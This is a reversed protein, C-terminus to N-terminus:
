WHRDRHMGVIRLEDGSRGRSADEFRSVRALAELLDACALPRRHVVVEVALMEPMAAEVAPCRTEHTGQQAAPRRRADRQRPQGLISHGEDGLIRGSAALVRDRRKTAADEKGLVTAFAPHRDRILAFSKSIFARTMAASAKVPLAWACDTGVPSALRPACANRAHTAQWETAGPSCM